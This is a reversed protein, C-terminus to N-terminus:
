GRQGAAVAREPRALLRAHRRVNGLARLCHTPDEFIALGARRMRDAHEPSGGMWVVVLPLPSAEAAAVIDATIADVPYNQGILGLCVVLADAADSRALVDLVKRLLSSDNIFQATLDVPNRAYGFAPLIRRLAEATDGGIAPVALGWRDALDAMIIGVGGSNTVIALRPGRPCVGKAVAEMYEVAEHLDEARLVGAGRFAADYVEARGAMAGTHSAAAVAGIETRGGKLIAVRKGHRHAARVARLFKAGDRIEELYALIISTGPHEALYAICDSSDVDAENGTNIWHSFGIRRDQALSFLVGGVAGSQSILAASGVLVEDRGFGSSFHAHVQRHLDAFGQTNPGLIRIGRQRAFRRLAEQLDRGEPGTEAFGASFVVAGKVRRAAAEELAKMVGAAGIAVIVLDVPEPVAALAPYCRLGDIDSYKPNIPYIRGPYGHARLFQIPRGGIRNLERTAGIVAISTPHFLADLGHLDISM